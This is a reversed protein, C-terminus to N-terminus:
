KMFLPLIFGSMAAMGIQERRSTHDDEDDDGDPNNATGGDLDIPEECGPCVVESRHIIRSTPVTFTMDCEGCEINTRSVM